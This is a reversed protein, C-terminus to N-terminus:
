GRLWVNWQRIGSIKRMASLFVVGHEALVRGKKPALMISDKFVDTRGNLRPVGYGFEDKVLDSHSALHEDPKDASDYYEDGPALM